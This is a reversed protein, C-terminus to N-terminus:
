SDLQANQPHTEHRHSPRDSLYKGRHFWRHTPPKAVFDYEPLFEEVAKCARERVGRYTWAGRAGCPHTSRLPGGGTQERRGGKKGGTEEKRGMRERNWWGQGQVCKSGQNRGKKWVKGVKRRTSTVAGGSRNGKGIEGQPGPAQQHQLGSATPAILPTRRHDIM